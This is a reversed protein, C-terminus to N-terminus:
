SVYWIESFGEAVTPEQWQAIMSDIVQQPIHKGPRSALRLALTAADPTRFVVAVHEYQPLMRFKKRRSAVTTSTQDWIMSNGMERCSIVNATMREIAQPMYETFVESYTKGQRLAEQEVWYDTSIISCDKAWDQGQLWTSKGSAPVGVLQYCRPM